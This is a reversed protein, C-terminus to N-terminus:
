SSCRRRCATPSTSRPPPSTSASRRSGRPVAARAQHRRALRLRLVAPRGAPHADAHRDVARRAARQHDDGPDRRLLGPRHVRDDALRGPGLHATFARAGNWGAGVVIGISAIEDEAQVIAFKTKGTEKDVRLKSCYKQFAEALSSSPTIPYWACVTAGGYVCGLAAATNGEVFIRNGVATPASSRSGLADARPARTGLRPRAAAGQPQVRAAKGQGQVARRAADRDGGARHRAAVALAGVYIINKFLQRQRPDTYTANASRRDAARRHRPHRRPVEVGADAQHQRLVPLRRARDGDVDEDWTQPNMAVMLDVGGRRGLYGKETVRVEYWTPLGQINSPFINRPSVPVGMRLIARAFLENASASGSGNVNAFKVVFDNVAALDGQPVRTSRTPDNGHLYKQMDWAGTPCREACLGCHLCVDEDKVMVRGTKLDGVVLPGADLNVRRRAAAAHAPGDGRRQRHLHHLGDPLHRRLRRVRHVAHRHVGDARRLEPLAASGQLRNRRRLRARGRGQHQKLAEAQRAQPVKYRLDHDSTTTTAGSTSAWRRAVRPQRRPAPRERRGRRAAAQRDLDGGRPRPGRGLHHEEPRVGRRRRLVGEPLTRDALTVEDLEPMGWEDFEIGVDREIWPFANEQGVAVLVDDCEFFARRARRHAGAQPPGQRRVRGQVKEFRMGTLKGDKHVFAKPVLCNLIPIGEHMADEKEWPSAKMEEFGSRVIVKVDEGGLRRATRCCDMATNGGGLVIVRKGIKRSTASRFRRRALRHRHPHQRGSGQPRANSTAAARRAALRRLGRRLRRGAAGEDVRRARTRPVRRRPRTIYGDEEDIVSEPLRFRPIQTRIFGGPKPDEDYISSRTAWRRSTARWPSRPPGPASAPSASATRRRRRPCAPRIGDDDKFDAAVRKLRCIAVPEKKGNVLTEDEVRGRRCAPECPRDCTRGLIGPFVNSEWNIMYADSYRGHAILRIYEPVPTHAPCAWQCDVVKHFYDPNEIDTPKLLVSWAGPRPRTFSLESIGWIPDRM